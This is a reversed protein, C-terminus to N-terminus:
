TIALIKKTMVEVDMPEYLNCKNHVIIICPRIASAVNEVAANAFSVVNDRYETNAWSGEGIYVIVDSIVYAFRPLHLNVAKRRKDVISQGGETMLKKLQSTFTNLVYKPISPSNSGEIDILSVHSPEHSPHLMSMDSHYIHVNGTTPYYNNRAAVAPIKEGPSTLHRIMTSKGVHTAGVFTCIHSPTSVESQSFKNRLRTVLCDNLYLEGFNENFSVLENDTDDILSQEQTSQDEFNARSIKLLEKFKALESDTVRMPVRQDLMIVAKNIITSYQEYLALIEALDEPDHARRSRLAEIDRILKAKDFGNVFEIVEVLEQRFDDIDELEELDTEDLELFASWSDIELQDKLVKAAKEFDRTTNFWLMSFLEKLRFSENLKPIVAKLVSRAKPKLKLSPIKDVPFMSLENVSSINNALLVELIEGVSKENMGKEELLLQRLDNTEKPLPDSSGEDNEM